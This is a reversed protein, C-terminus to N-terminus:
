QCYKSLYKESIKSGNEIAITFDRCGETENNQKIRALGRNHYAMYNEDDVKLVRTFDMEADLYNSVYLNCTGRNYLCDVENIPVETSDQFQLAKTYYSIGNEYMKARFSINGALLHYDSQFPELQLSWKIKKMANHYDKKKFFAFAAIYTFDSNGSNFEHAQELYDIALDYNEEEILLKAEEYLAFSAEYDGQEIEQPCAHLHILACILSFLTKSKM